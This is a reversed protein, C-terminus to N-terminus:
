TKMPRYVIAYVVKSFLYVLMSIYIPDVMLVIEAQTARASQYMVTRYWLVFRKVSYIVRVYM